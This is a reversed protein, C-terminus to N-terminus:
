SLESGKSLSPGLEIGIGAAPLECTGQIGLESPGLRYECAFVSASCVYM